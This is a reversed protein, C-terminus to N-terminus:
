VVFLALAEAQEALVCLSGVLLQIAGVKNWVLLLEVHSRRSWSVESVVDVKLGVDIIEELVISCM